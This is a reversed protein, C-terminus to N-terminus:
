TWRCAKWCSREVKPDTTSRNELDRVGAGLVVITAVRVEAAVVMDQPAIDRTTVIETDPVAAGGGHRPLLLATRNMATEAEVTRGPGQHRATVPISDETQRLDELLLGPYTKLM